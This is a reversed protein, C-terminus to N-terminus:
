DREFMWSDRSYGYNKLDLVFDYDILDPMLIRTRVNFHGDRQVDDRANQLYRVFTNLHM